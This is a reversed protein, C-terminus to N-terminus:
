YRADQPCINFSSSGLVVSCVVISGISAQGALQDLVLLSGPVILQPQLCMRMGTKYRFFLKMDDKKREKEKM